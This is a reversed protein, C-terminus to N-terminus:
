HIRRFRRGGVLLLLMGATLALVFTSPEPVPAVARPALTQGAFEVVGGSANLAVATFSSLSPGSPSDFQFGSVTTGAAFSRTNEVFDLLGLRSDFNANFGNPVSLNQIALASSPVSLTVVSLAFPSANVIAYNYRFGGGSMTVTPNVSVPEAQVARPLVLACLLAGILVWFKGHQRSRSTM